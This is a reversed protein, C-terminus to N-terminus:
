TCYEDGHVMASVGGDGRRARVKVGLWARLEDPTVRDPEPDCNAEAVMRATRVHTTTFEFLHDFVATGFVKDFFAIPTRADEPLWRWQTWLTGGQFGRFHSARRYRVPAESTGALIVIGKTLSIWSQWCTLSSRHSPACTDMWGHVRTLEPQELGARRSTTVRMVTTPALMSQMASSAKLESDVIEVPM